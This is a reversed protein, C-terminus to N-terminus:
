RVDLARYLDALVADPTHHAAFYEGAREGLSAQLSSDDLLIGVQHSLDDLDTVTHAISTLYRMSAINSPGIALLPKAVSLYEPIKTSLSLRTIAVSEPEFSEVHVLIDAENIVQRYRSPQVLPLVRSSGKRNLRDLDRGELVTGTYIELFAPRRGAGATKNYAAVAGVLDGLVQARGSHLSGAYVLLQRGDDRSSSGDLRLSATVNGVVTSDKGFVAAYTDRMTPSITFFAASDHVARRLHAAIMRRRLEGLGWPWRGELVYDDTLFVAMRAGTLRRIQQAVRYAFVSDGACLFVLDPAVSELWQGLRGLSPDRRRWIVERLLLAAHGRLVPLRSIRPNKVAPAVVPEETRGGIPAVAVPEGVVVRSVPAHLLDSDRVQFYRVGPRASPLEPSFYLQAVRDDPFEQFLSALTKGNNSTESLPNNSVILVKPWVRAPDPRREGGM